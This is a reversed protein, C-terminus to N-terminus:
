LLITFLILPLHLLYEKFVVITKFIRYNVCNMHEDVAALWEQNFQDTLRLKVAKSFWTRNINLARSDFIYTMGLRNLTTKVFVLWPHLYRNGNFTDLIHAYVAYALKSHNNHQVLKIWFVRMTVDISLPLCGTKGHVM